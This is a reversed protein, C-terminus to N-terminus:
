KFHKRMLALLGERLEPRRLGFSITADLYGLRAGTDYRDGEFQYALLGDKKALNLLADTFQVEGGRGPKTEKIHNFIKADVIYRGPIAFRSPAEEKKPKEVM